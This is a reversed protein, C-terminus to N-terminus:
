ASAAEIRSRDEADLEPVGVQRLLVRAEDGQPLRVPEPPPGVEDLQALWAKIRPGSKLKLASGVIDSYM